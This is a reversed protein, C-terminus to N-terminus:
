SRPVIPILIKKSIFMQKEKNVKQSSAVCFIEVRSNITDIHHLSAKAFLVLCWCFILPIYPAM